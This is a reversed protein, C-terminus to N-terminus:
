IPAEDSMKQRSILKDDLSLSIDCHLEGARYAVKVACHHV